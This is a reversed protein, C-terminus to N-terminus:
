RSMRALLMGVALAIGVAALPHERVSARVEDFWEDGIERMQDARQHLLDGADHVGEELKGVHPAARDALRDITSHASQVVRGLLESRAGGNSQRQVDADRSTAAHDMDAESGGAATPFSYSENSV